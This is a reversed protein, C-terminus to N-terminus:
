LIFTLASVSFYLATLLIGRLTSSILALLRKIAKFFTGGNIVPVVICKSEVYVLDSCQEGRGESSGKDAFSGTKEATRNLSCHSLSIIIMTFFCHGFLRQRIAVQLFHCSWWLTVFASYQPRAAEVYNVLKCSKTQCVAFSGFPM